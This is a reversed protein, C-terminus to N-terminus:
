ESEFGSGIMRWSVIRRDLIRYRGILNLKGIDVDIESGEKV